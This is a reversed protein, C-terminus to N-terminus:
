NDSKIPWYDAM